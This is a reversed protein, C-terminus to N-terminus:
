SHRLSPAHPNEQRSKTCKPDSNINETANEFNDALCLMTISAGVAAGIILDRCGNLAEIAGHIHHRKYKTNFKVNKTM